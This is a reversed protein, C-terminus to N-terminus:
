IDTHLMWFCFLSLLTAMSISSSCVKGGMQFPAASGLLLQRTKPETFETPQTQCLHGTAVLNQAQQLAKRSM